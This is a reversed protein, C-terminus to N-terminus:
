FNPIGDQLKPHRWIQLVVHNPHPDSLMFNEKHRFYMQVLNHMIKVIKLKKWPCFDSWLELAMTHIPTACNDFINPIGQNGTLTGVADATSTCLAKSFCMHKKTSKKSWGSKQYKKLTHDQLTMVVRKTCDGDTQIYTHINLQPPPLEVHHFKALIM